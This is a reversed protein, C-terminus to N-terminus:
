TSFEGLALAEPTLIELFGMDNSIAGSIGGFTPSAEGRLM